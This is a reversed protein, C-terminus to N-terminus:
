PLGFFVFVLQLLLPTGKIVTIGFSIVYQIGFIIMNKSKISRIFGMLFAAPISIIMTMLSLLVTMGIGKLLFLVDFVSVGM